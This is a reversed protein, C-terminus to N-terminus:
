VKDRLKGANRHVKEIAATIDDMDATTGLLMSQSLWVAEETSLRDNVPCHNRETFKKFDLMEAPYMKTYNKSRFADDLYPMNTLISGYGGFCSIGEANLAKIFTARPINQFEEKKFRFPFYHFSARTVNDYLRYPLIGPIDKIRSRLYAANKNRITTHVDLRSLQTLGVAAQYETLRLNNARIMYRGGVPDKLTGYATGCDHYSHCKDMFIEDDSVIAGGEGMALHKSNQFSFCGANGFTGMKKHNVEAMWAQCADEVIVLDHKGAIELIRVIDSPLGLIHVPLIARTNSTIKEEIKGPNIQFTEPDVDVFVPMAGVELIASISAIFTYPTVIVEDGGGIDLMKLSTILANTGNVLALCYKAGLMEAWKEEFQKVVSNQVRARSWVCSRLVKIVMEEDTSVDWVPWKPWPETRVPQGGLLALTDNNKEFAFLSPVGEMAIITGIGTIANKRVFERRSYNKKKM